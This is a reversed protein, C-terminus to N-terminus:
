SPPNVCGLEFARRAKLHRRAEAYRARDHANDGMHGPHRDMVSLAWEVDDALDAGFQDLLNVVGAVQSTNGPSKMGESGELDVYHCASAHPKWGGRAPAPERDADALRPRPQCGCCSAEAMYAHCISAAPGPFRLM